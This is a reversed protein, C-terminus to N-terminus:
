RHLRMLPRSPDSAISNRFYSRNQDNCWARPANQHRIDMVSSGLNPADSASHANSTVNSEASEVLDDHNAFRYMCCSLKGSVQMDCLREKGECAITPQQPAEKGCARSSAYKQQCQNAGQLQETWSCTRSESTSLM